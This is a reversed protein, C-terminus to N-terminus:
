LARIFRILIEALKEPAEVPLMHGVGEVVELRANPARDVMEQHQAPPSWRDESGTVALIPCHISALLDLRNARNLLARQQAAFIDADARLLMATIGDVLAVDDRRDPALMPPLWSGAVSAMGEARALDVLKLRGEAEQTTPSAAGTDLLVLGVIRERAQDALELAVRGGMSHGIVVMPGSVSAAIREAMLGLSDCGDTRAIHVAGLRSLPGIVGHWVWADNMLGPILVITPLKQSTTM